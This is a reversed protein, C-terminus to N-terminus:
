INYMYVGGVAGMVMARVELEELKQLTISKLPLIKPQTPPARV